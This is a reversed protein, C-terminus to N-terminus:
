ADWLLLGPVRAHCKELHQAHEFFLLVMSFWIKLFIWIDHAVSGDRTPLKGHAFRMFWSFWQNEIFKSWLTMDSEKVNHSDQRKTVLERQYPRSWSLSWFGFLTCAGTGPGVRSPLTNGRQIKIKETRSADNFLLTKWSENQMIFNSCRFKVHEYVLKWPITKM